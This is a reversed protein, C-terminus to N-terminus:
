EDSWAHSEIWENLDLLLKKAEQSKVKMSAATIFGLLKDTIETVEMLERMDAEHDIGLSKLEEDTLPPGERVTSVVDGDKDRIYHKIDGEAM